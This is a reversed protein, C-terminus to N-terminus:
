PGIPKITKFQHNRDFILEGAQFNGIVLDVPDFDDAIEDAVNLAGPWLKLEFQISSIMRMSLRQEIDPSTAMFVSAAKPTNAALMVNAGAAWAPSRAPSATNPATAPATTAPGTPRTAPPAIPYVAPGPIAM